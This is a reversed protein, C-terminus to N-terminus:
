KQEEEANDHKLVDLQSVLLVRVNLKGIEDNLATTESTKKSHVEALKREHAAQEKELQALVTELQALATELEHQLSKSSVQQCEM